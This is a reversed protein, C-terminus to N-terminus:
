SFHRYGPAYAITKGNLRATVGGGASIAGICTMDVALNLKPRSPATFLLEYDDGASIAELPTLGQWVPVLDLDLTAAVRSRGCLHELDAALGDSIDIAATATGRLAVGVDLRPIPRYYRELGPEHAAGITGTVFIMDGPQAGSRLLAKGRPVFGHASVTVSLPGRSLNGGVISVKYKRACQALGRAFGTVWREDASPITLSVLCYRADAGMAALDSLNVALSRYGTGEAPAGVPFHRGEILSDTTVVLQQGAPVALVACDDGPGEVVGRGRAVDDLERVILDILEFENM